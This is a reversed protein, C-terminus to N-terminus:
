IAPISNLKIHYFDRANCFLTLALNFLKVFDFPMFQIFDVVALTKLGVDFFWKMELGHLVALNDTFGAALTFNTHKKDIVDDDRFFGASLSYSFFKEVFGGSECLPPARVFDHEEGANVPFRFLKVFFMAKFRGADELVMEVM